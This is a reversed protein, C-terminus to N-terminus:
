IAIDRGRNKALWAELARKEIVSKCGLRISPFGPMAMLRYAKDRGIHFMQRIDNTDYITIDTTNNTNNTNNEM